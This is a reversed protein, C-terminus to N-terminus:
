LDRIAGNKAPYCIHMCCDFGFAEDEHFEAELLAIVTLQGALPKVMCEEGSVDHIPRGTISTVVESVFSLM